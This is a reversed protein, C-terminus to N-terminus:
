IYFMVQQLLFKIERRHDRFPLPPTPQPSIPLALRSTVPNPSTDGM